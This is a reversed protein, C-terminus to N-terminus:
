PIGPRMRRPGSRRSVTKWSKPGAPITTSIAPRRAPIDIDRSERNPSGRQPNPRLCRGPFRSNSSCTAPSLVLAYSIAPVITVQLGHGNEAPALPAGGEGCLRCRGQNGQSVKAIKRGTAPNTVDFSRAQAPNFDGGIIIDLGAKTASWCADVIGSIEAGLGYDM